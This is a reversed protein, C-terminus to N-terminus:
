NTSEDLISTGKQSSERIGPYIKTNIGNLKKWLDLKESNLEPFYSRSNEMAGARYYSEQAKTYFDKRLVDKDRRGVRALVQKRYRDAIALNTTEIQRSHKWLFKIRNDLEGEKWLRMGYARAYGVEDLKEFLVQGYRELFIERTYYIGNIRKTMLENQLLVDNPEVIFYNRNIFSFRYWTGKSLQEFEENAYGRLNVKPNTENKYSYGLQEEDRFKLYSDNGISVYTEFSPSYAEFSFLPSQIFFRSKRMVKKNNKKILDNIFKTRSRYRIDDEFLYENLSVNKDFVIPNTRNIPLPHFVADTDRKKSMKLEEESRSILLMNGVNARLYFFVEKELVNIEKFSVSSEPAMRILTGDFLMLWLYSDVGTEIDDNEKILSRYGVKNEGLDRFLTCQGVCKIVRGMEERLGSMKALDRWLPYSEKFRLDEKWSEYSLWDKAELKDWKILSKRDDKFKLEPNAFAAFYITLLLLVRLMMFKM